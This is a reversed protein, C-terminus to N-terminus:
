NPYLKAHRKNILMCDMEILSANVSRSIPYIGTLHFGAREYAELVERYRPMGEYIPEIALESLLMVIAPLASVAGRFVALDHGQTDMKLLIRREEWDPIEAVLFDSVTSMTVTETTAAAIDRYRDAGFESPPLFSALDSSRAVNITAEGPAESLALQHAHWNNDGATAAQLARFTATVPEFSHVEGRYGQRRLRAVFQGENAGVDLVLDIDQQRILNVTHIDATPHKKRKILEYGFLKAIKNHLKM